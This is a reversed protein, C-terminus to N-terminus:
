PVSQKRVYFKDEEAAQGTGSSFWRYRWTGAATANINAHYTGVSDRVVAADTGYLLTTTVGAPTRYALRVEAPDIASGYEDSFVASVKVLDGVDYINM